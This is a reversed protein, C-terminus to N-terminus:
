YPFSPKGSVYRESRSGSQNTFEPILTGGVCRRLSHCEEVFVFYAEVCRLREPYLGKSGARNGLAFFEGRFRQLIFCANGRYVTYLAYLGYINNIRKGPAMVRCVVEGACM